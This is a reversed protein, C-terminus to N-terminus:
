QDLESHDPKRSALLREQNREIQRLSALVALCWWVLLWIAGAIVVTRLTLGMVGLVVAVLIGLSVVHTWRLQRNM